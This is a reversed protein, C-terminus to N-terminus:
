QGRGSAAEPRVELMWMRDDNLVRRAARQVDDATVRETGPVIARIADLRRPDRQAGSLEGVWYGNTERAKQLNDIRPKRAREMEDATPPHAKLDAAIKRVDAFFDPLKAPPVEVSAAVYGWGPWVMSHNYAVNPSYTAGQDERLDQILRLEMVEAMVDNDRAAQPDTFFDGTRWAVYGIAQDARGKHTLEVPSSVAAPFPVTLRAPDPEAQPPRPPLAGFTRAVLDV